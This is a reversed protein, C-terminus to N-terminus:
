CSGDTDGKQLLTRDSESGSGESEPLAAGEDLNSIMCRLGRRIMELEEASFGRALTAEMKKKHQLSLDRFGDAKETTRVIRVRKDEPDRSSTIFGNKEMRSLIGTVTPHSIHFFQEIDKQAASGGHSHIYWMTEMQALTLGNDRLLRNARSKLKENLIKILHGVERVDLLDGKSFETM